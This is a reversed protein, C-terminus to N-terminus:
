TAPLTPIEWQIEWTEMQKFYFPVFPDTIRRGYQRTRDVPDCPVLWDLKLFM